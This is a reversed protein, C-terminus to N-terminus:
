PTLRRTFTRVGFWSGVVIYAVVVALHGLATLLGISGMTAGRALEACHWLPTCWAIPRLGVPLQELPFFTGSFLSLPLVVLRMIIPFTSDSDQTAGFASLPAAFAVACLASVFIALVGWPSPVGGILAAVTMFPVAMMASWGACWLLNGFYVDSARMPTAVAAHYMGMWKHGAVTGWLAGGANNQMAAMVLLSPVVFTLYDVGDLSANRGGDDILGGLGVGMAGLFMVPMAVGSFVSGYWIRQWVRFEREAYRFPRPLSRRRPLSPRPVPVTTSM